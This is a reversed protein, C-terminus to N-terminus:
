GSLFINYFSNENIHPIDLPFWNVHYRKANIENPSIQISLFNLNVKKKLNFRNSESEVNKKLNIWSNIWILNIGTQIKLVSSYIFLDAKYIKLRDWYQM